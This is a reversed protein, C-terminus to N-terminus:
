WWFFPPAPPAYASSTSSISISSDYYLYLYNVEVRLVVLLALPSYTIVTGVQPWSPCSWLWQSCSLLWPSCSQLWLNCSWWLWPYCTRHWPNCTRHWARRSERCPKVRHARCDIFVQIWDYQMTSFTLVITLFSFLHVMNNWRQLCLTVFLRDYEGLCDILWDILLCVCLYWVDGWKCCMGAVDLM